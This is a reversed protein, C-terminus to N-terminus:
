GMGSYAGTVIHAIRGDSINRSVDGSDRSREESKPKASDGMPASVSPADAVAVPPVSAAKIPRPAASASVAAVPKSDATASMVNAPRRLNEDTIGSAERERQIRALTQEREYAIMEAQTNFYKVNPGGGNVIKDQRALAQDIERQDQEAQFDRPKEAAQPAAAVAVSPTANLEGSHAEPLYERTLAIRDDLGNTGGNIKRTVAEVDGSKAADSLGPRSKWYWTAIKAAVEPDAAMDPNNVLDLGLADGAAAYNARGTLQTYGRGRFNYGDGEETNGLNKRGWDGGYMAEGMAGKGQAIIAKAEDVTSIGARKGFLKLFQEPKYNLNEEVQTFGASEHHMQAMFQAQEMPDTIGSNAMEQRLAQKGEAYNSSKRVASVAGKAGTAEYVSSAAKKIGGWLWDGAGVIKDKASEVVEGAKDKAASYTESVVQGATSVTEAIDIGTKEKVYDNAQSAVDKISGWWQEALGTVKDWAEGMGAVASDWKESIGDAISNWKESFTTSIGDWATSLTGTVTSWTESIKTTTSNWTDSVTTTVSNWAGSVTSTVTNWKDTVASSAQGWLHSAFDTTQNWASVISSGIKSDRLDGVWEGVKEGIIDGASDGLWGGVAAGVLGGIATGIVPVVSGLAAGATAGAAMGGISGVGRGVASGTAKDKEKRTMDSTESAHVDNAMLGLSLLTGLIPVKKGLKSAGRLAKGGGTKLMGRIGGKAAGAGAKTGAKAAGAAKAGVGATAAKAAKGGGAAAGALKAALGKAGLLGAIKSLLGLPILAKLIGSLFTLIPAFLGGLAGLLGGKKGGQADEIDELQDVIETHQKNDRKRGQRMQRWFRRYWRDQGADGGGFIKGFGRQLPQAVENFAKVAPDSEESVALEGVAGTLRDGLDSIAGSLAGDEGGGEDDPTKAGVFRGSADRQAGAKKADPSAVTQNTPAMVPAAVAVPSVPAGTLQTQPTAPLAVGGTVPGSDATIAEIPPRSDSPRETSTVGPAASDSGDPTKAGVFRGSDIVVPEVVIRSSMPDNAASRSGTYGITNESEPMTAPAGVAGIARSIAKLEDLIDGLYGQLDDQQVRQGTLFGQEDYQLAM